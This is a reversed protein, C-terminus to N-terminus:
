KKEWEKRSKKDFNNYQDKNKQMMEIFKEKRLKDNWLNFSELIKKYKITRREIMEMKERADYAWPSDPYDNVVNSFYHYAKPFLNIIESVKLKTKEIETEDINIINSNHDNWSSPHIKQFCAMGNKYYVYAPDSHVKLDLDSGPRSNSIQINSVNSKRNILRHYARNVEIFILHNKLRKEDNSTDPHLEKARKKFAMKIISIDNTETIGLIQYDSIM